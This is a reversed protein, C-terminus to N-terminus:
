WKEPLLVGTLATYIIYFPYLLSCLIFPLISLHTDYFITGSKLFTYDSVLKLVFATLVGWLPLLPLLITAIFLLLNVVFVLSALLIADRDTYATSKGGWRKRQRFFHRWSAVPVTYVMAKKNHLFRIKYGEKKFAHLLFVDDGSALHQGAQKNVVKTWAQKEFILNAGNGFVPHGAMAMAAGSMQLSLFDNRQFLHFFTNKGTTLMVPGLLMATPEAAYEKLITELWYPSPICDADTTVILQGTAAEIGKRLASKKGYGDSQLVQAKEILWLYDDDTSHDNVAIIEYHDASLSQQQLHKILNPLSQIENHFAIIVSIRPLPAKRLPHKDPRKKQWHFRLWLIVTAYIISTLLLAILM